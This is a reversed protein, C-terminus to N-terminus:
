SGGTRRLRIVAAVLQAEEIPKELSPVDRFLDPIAAADYGTAFLFPIGREALAAAVVYSPGRGLNIDVVACDIGGDILPLAQEAKAVPGVIVGGAAELAQQGDAALYYDDEVILIRLGALPGTSM